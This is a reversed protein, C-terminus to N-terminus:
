KCPITPQLPRLHPNQPTNTQSRLPRLSHYPASTSMYWLSKISHAVLCKYLLVASMFKCNGLCPVCVLVLVCVGSIDDVVDLPFGTSFVHRM